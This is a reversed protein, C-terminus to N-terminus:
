IKCTHKETEDEPRKVDWMKECKNVEWCMLCVWRIWGQSGHCLALQLTLTPLDCLLHSWLDMPIWLSGIDSVWGKRCIHYHALPYLYMSFGKKLQLHIWYHINKPPYTFKPHKKGNIFGPLLLWLSPKLLFLSYICASLVGLFPNPAHLSGGIFVDGLLSRRSRWCCLKTGPTLSPEYVWTPQRDFIGLIFSWHCGTVVDPPATLDVEMCQRKWM